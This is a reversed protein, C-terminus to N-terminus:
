RVKEGRKVREMIKFREPIYAWNGCEDLIYWVEDIETVGEIDTYIIYVGEKYMERALEQKNLIKGTKTDKFFIEEGMDRKEKKIVGKEIKETKFPDYGETIRDYTPPKIDERPKRKKWM